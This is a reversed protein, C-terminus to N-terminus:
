RLHWFGDISVGVGTAAFHYTGRKSCFLFNGKEPLIYTFLIELSGLRFPFM